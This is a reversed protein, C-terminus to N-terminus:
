LIRDSDKGASGLLAKYRTDSRHNQAAILFENVIEDPVVGGGEVTRQLQDLAADFRREKEKLTIDEAMM